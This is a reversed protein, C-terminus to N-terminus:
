DLPIEISCKPCTAVLNPGTRVRLKQTCAPCSIVIKDTTAEVDESMAANRRQLVYITDSALLHAWDAGVAIGQVTAQLWPAAWIDEATKNLVTRYAVLRVMKLSCGSAYVM